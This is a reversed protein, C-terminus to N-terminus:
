FSTKRELEDQAALIGHQYTVRLSLGCLLTVWVAEGAPAGSESSKQQPLLTLWQSLPGGM